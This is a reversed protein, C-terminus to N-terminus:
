KPGIVKLNPFYSRYFGRDRTLLVDAQIEAHSAILFDPLIRTRKGGRKLYKQWVTAALFSSTRLLPEVQFGREDLFRDCDNQSSFAGCIEAYVIDCLVIKGAVYASELADMAQYVYRSDNSLLDILINTDIATIM